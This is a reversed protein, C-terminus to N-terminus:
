AKQHLLAQKRITEGSNEAHRVGYNESASQIIDHIRIWNNTADAWSDNEGVGAIAVLAHCCVDSRQASPMELSSLISGADDLEAM